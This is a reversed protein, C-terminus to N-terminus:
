KSPTNILLKETNFGRGKAKELIRELLSKSLSSSRSLIWLFKDSKGASILAWDYDDGLEMIRYDSYFIWFFSVRLLGPFVTKKAKGIAVRRKGNFDIGSNVVAIKGDERLSYEATVDNLGREFRHDYRAIEYWKGLFKQLDLKKVTENNFAKATTEM